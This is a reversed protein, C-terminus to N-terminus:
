KMWSAAFDFDWSWILPWVFIWKKQWLCHFRKQIQDPLSVKGSFDWSDAIMKNYLHCWVPWVRVESSAPPPLFYEFASWLLGTNHIDGGSLFFFFSVSEINDLTSATRRAQRRVFRGRRPWKGTYKTAPTVFWWQIVSAM